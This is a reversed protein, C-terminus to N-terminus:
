AKQGKFKLIYWGYKDQQLKPELYVLGMKPKQKFCSFLYWKRKITDKPTSFM